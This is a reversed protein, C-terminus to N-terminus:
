LLRINDIFLTDDWDNQVTFIIVEKIKSLDMDRTVPAKKIDSLPFIFSNHGPKILNSQSFRDSYNGSHNDDNVRVIVVRDKQQGNYFFEIMLMQNKAWNEPVYDIEIGSYQTITDFIISGCHYSKNQAWNDPVDHTELQCGFSSLNQSLSSNEFDCILPFAYEIKALTIIKKIYPALVVAVIVFALIINIYRKQTNLKFSAYILICCTIGAFDLILDDIDSDRGTPIQILEMLIALM